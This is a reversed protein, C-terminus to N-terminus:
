KNFLSFLGKKKQEEKNVSVLTYGAQKVLDQLVPEAIDEGFLIVVQNKASCATVQAAPFKAQLTKAMHAECHACMMGHVELTIKNM